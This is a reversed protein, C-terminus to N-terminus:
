VFVVLPPLPSNVTEKGYMTYGQGMHGPFGQGLFFTVLRSLSSPSFPYSDARVCVCVCMCM